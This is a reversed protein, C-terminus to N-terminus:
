EEEIRMRILYKPLVGKFYKMDDHSVNLLYKLASQLYSDSDPLLKTLVFKKDSVRIKVQGTTTNVIVCLNPLLESKSLMENILNQPCYLILLNNCQSLIHYKLITVTSPIVVKKLKICCAFCANEIVEVGEPIDAVELGTREFVNSYLNVVNLPINCNLSSCGSFASVGIEIVSDPIYRIQIQKCNEFANEGITVLTDPLYEMQLSLCGKFACSYIEKVGEPLDASQLYKCGFFCETPIIEVGYPIKVSIVTSCYFSGRGIIKVNSLDVHNFNSEMFANVKLTTVVDPVEFTDASYIGAGLKFPVNKFVTNNPYKATDYYDVPYWIVDQFSHFGNFTEYQRRTYFHHTKLNPYVCPELDSVPNYRLMKLLLQYMRRTRVINIIDKGSRFYRIVIALMDLPLRFDYNNFNTSRAIQSREKWENSDQESLEYTINYLNTANDNHINNDNDIDSDVDILDITEVSDESLDSSSDLDIPNLFDDGVKAYKLTDDCKGNPLNMVHEDAKMLSSKNTFGIGNQNSKYINFADDPNRTFKNYIETFANREDEGFQLGKQKFMNKMENMFTIYNNMDDISQVFKKDQVFTEDFDVDSFSIDDFWDSNDNSKM